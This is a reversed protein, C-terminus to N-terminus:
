YVAEVMFSQVVNDKLVITLEVPARNGSKGPIKTEAIQYLLCSREQATQAKLTLQDSKIFPKGKGLAKNVQEYTMGVLSAQVAQFNSWRESESKGRILPVPQSASRPCNPAGILGQAHVTCFASTGLFLLLLSVIIRKMGSVILGLTLKWCGPQEWGSRVTSPCLDAM